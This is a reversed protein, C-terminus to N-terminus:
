CQNLEGQNFTNTQIENDVNVYDFLIIDEYEFYNYGAYTEYLSNFLELTKTM